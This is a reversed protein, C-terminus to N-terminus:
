RKKYKKRIRSLSVPSIGLLSAVDKQKVKDMLDPYKSSFWEYKESASCKALIIKIEWHNKLSMKLFRNYLCVMEFDNEILHKMLQMPVYIISSDEVIEITIPSPSDIESCSVMPTGIEMGFCDTVDNGSSDTYYGRFLGKELFGIRSPVDGAWQIIEGKKVYLRESKETLTELLDENKLELVDKYFRYIEKM